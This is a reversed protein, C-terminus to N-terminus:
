FGSLFQSSVTPYQSLILREFWGSWMRDPHWIHGESQTHSFCCNQYHPEEVLILKQYKLLMMSYQWRCNFPKQTLPKKPQPSICARSYYWWRLPVAPWCIQSGMLLPGTIQNLLFLNQRSKWVEGGKWGKSSGSCLINAAFLVRERERRETWM